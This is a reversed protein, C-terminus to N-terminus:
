RGRRTLHWILYPVGILAAVLGAPLQFPFIVIRGLWDALVMLIAGILGAGILQEFARRLGLARSLHPGVLGAFTLPGIALVSAATLLATLGMIALRSFRLDIGLERATEEGLPFIDLQRSFLPAVLLLPAAMALTAWVTAADARYTSGALWALLQAARPDGLAIFSVIIADLFASLAVGTLLLQDPASRSRIGRWLLVALVAFAGVFSMALQLSRSPATSIVMSLLIGIAVGTGIGLVEPSAVPNRTLRQLLVGAMGLMAGGLLAVSVRPVRWEALASLMEGDAISWGAVSRGVMIGIITALLLVAVLLPFLFAPKHLTAPTTSDPALDTSSSKLQPLLWLLLPAGLLATIAGTPLFDSFGGSVSQAAQDVLLLLGAGMLPAVVLREQFRRAGALRAIQPSALGIFGIIGVSSTVFATLLVAIFLAALRLLRLSVGLASASEDSLTLVVLPRALLATLLACVLLRPLLYIVVSWDQQALSGAGWIYLSSIYEQNLLKLAVVLSGCFLSTVLGALILTLSSFGRASSVAFILGTVALAGAIAVFERGAGLLFPAWITAIVLALQAGAEVGLTTPSALPNRLVHQFITSALGLAAGCLIATILRPLSSYHFLLQRVDEIAPHLSAQPWLIFPLQTGLRLAAWTLALLALCTALAFSRSSSAQM